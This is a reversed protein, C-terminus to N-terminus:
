VHDFETWLLVDLNMVIVTKLVCNQIPLKVLRKLKKNKKCALIAVCTSIDLKMKNIEFKM